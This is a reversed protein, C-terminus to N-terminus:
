RDAGAGSALLSRARAADRQMQQALEDLSDFRAEDRLFHAFEVEIERGYWDDANDFFHTELLPRTGGLTPRVGLSAVGPWTTAGGCSLRAKVAYVGFRLAPRHRFHINATPMGLQRGLKLGHRVRGIISYRRGLFGEVADFQAAALADRIASSSCRTGAVTVPEVIDALQGRAALQRQLQGTDGSRNVGYRFDFGVVVARAGLRDCILENVFRDTDMAALRADFRLCIVRDMGAREFRRIRDRFESVRPPARDCLFYERAMPEFTLVAAPVGFGQAHHRARGLLEQHARHVGDFNGIALACGRHRDRLNHLGRILEM